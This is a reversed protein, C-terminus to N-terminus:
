CLTNTTPRLQKEKEEETGRETRALIDYYKGGMTTSRPLEPLHTSWYDDEQNEEYRGCQCSTCVRGKWWTKRPTQGAGRSTGRIIIGLVRHHQTRHTRKIKANEQKKTQEWYSGTESDAETLNEHDDRGYLNSKRWAQFTLGHIREDWM